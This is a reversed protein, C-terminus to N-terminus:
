GRSRFEDIQLRSIERDVAAAIDRSEANHRAPLKGLDDAASKPQFRSAAVCALVVIGAGIWFRWGITENWFAYGALGAWIVGTYSVIVVRNPNGASVAATFLLQAITSALGVAILLPLIMVDPTEWAWILPIAAFISSFLSYFFVIRTASERGSLFCIAIVAVASFFGSGLGLLAGITLVAGQPDLVFTVGVFGVIAATIARGELPVRLMLLALLPVFIPSTFQLLVADALPIRAIAGFYCYMAALSALTRLIHMGFRGESVRGRLDRWVWPLLIVAAVVNRFFVIMANSMDAAAVKVALGALVFFVSSGLMLMAGRLNDHSTESFKAM